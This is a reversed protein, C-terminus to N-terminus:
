ARIMKARFPRRKRLALAYLRCDAHQPFPLESGIAGVNQLPYRRNGLLPLGRCVLTIRRGSEGQQAVQRMRGLAQTLRRCEGIPDIADDAEAVLQANGWLFVATTRRMGCDVVIEVLAIAVM